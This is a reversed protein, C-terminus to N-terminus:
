ERRVLGWDYLWVEMAQAWFRGTLPSRPKPNAGRHAILSAHRSPQVIVSDEPPLKALLKVGSARNQWAPPKQAPGQGREDAVLGASLSDELDAGARACDRGM